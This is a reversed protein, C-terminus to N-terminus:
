SGGTKESPQLAYIQNAITAGCNSESLCKTDVCGNHDSAIEIAKERAAEFGDKFAQAKWRHAIKTMTTQSGAAAENAAKRLAQAIYGIACKKDSLEGDRDICFTLLPELLREAEWEFQDQDTM